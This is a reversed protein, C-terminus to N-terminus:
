PPSGIRQLSPAEMGVAPADVPMGVRVVAIRGLNEASGHTHKSQRNAMYATTFM